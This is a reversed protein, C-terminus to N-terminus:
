ASSMQLSRLFRFSIESPCMTMTTPFTKSHDTRYFTPAPFLQTDRTNFIEIKQNVTVVNRQLFHVVFHMAVFLIEHAQLTVSLEGIGFMQFQM